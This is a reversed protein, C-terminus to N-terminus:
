GRLWQSQWSDNRLKRYNQQFKKTKQIWREEQKLMAAMKLTLTPWEVTTVWVYRSEADTACYFGKQRSISVNKTETRKNYNNDRLNTVNLSTASLLNLLANYCQVNNSSSLEQM